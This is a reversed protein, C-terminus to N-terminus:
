TLPDPPVAVAAQYGALDTVMADRGDPLIVWASFSTPGPM